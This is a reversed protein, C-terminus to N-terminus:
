PNPAVEVEVLLLIMGLLYVAAIMLSDFGFRRLMKRSSKYTLGGVAIASLLIAVIGTILVQSVHISGPPMLLPKLQFLSVFKMLAVVFINFMNSGFLNGLALDLNGLRVAAVSTTIEPLSTALALFGAGVFTAGLSRGIAEIEHTSLIDGIQALWWSAAVVVIALVTVKGYLGPPAHRKIKQQEPHLAKQLNQEYRYVLRMSLLYGFFIAIAWCLEFVWALPTAAFKDAVIIGFLALGMLFIGLSSSLTHAASATRLVSGGGIIANLLFLITVNFSCSGLVGGLALDVNGLVTATCGSIVEPLSTVTALLILGIWGGGINLAEALEDGLKAFKAGSVIVIVCAVVM